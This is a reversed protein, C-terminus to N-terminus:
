SFPVRSCFDWKAAFHNRLGMAVGQSIGRLSRFINKKIRKPQLIIELSCFSRWAIFIVQLISLPKRLCKAFGLFTTFIRLSGRLWADLSSLGKVLIVCLFGRVGNRVEKFWWLGYSWSLAGISFVIDDLTVVLVSALTRIWGVWSAVVYADAGCSRVM